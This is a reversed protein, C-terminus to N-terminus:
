SRLASRIAEVSPIGLLRGDGSAYVRCCNSDAESGEGAVDKGDVLVTPSGYRKVHAPAERSERDWELWNPSQGLDVLARRLQERVAGVNPCDRDFILEVKHKM